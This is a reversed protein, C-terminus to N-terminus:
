RKMGNNIMIVCLSELIQAVEAEISVGRNITVVSEGDVDVGM